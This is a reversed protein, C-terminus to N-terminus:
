HLYVLLVLFLVISSFYNSLFGRGLYFKYYQLNELKRLILEPGLNELLGRDIKFYFWHSIKLGCFYFKMYAENVFWANSLFTVAIVRTKNNTYVACMWLAFALGAVTFLLPCMKVWNSVSPSVELLFDKSLNYGLGISFISLVILGVTLATSSEKTLSKVLLSGKDEAIIGELIARMTYCATFCAGILGFLYPYAILSNSHALEIILDKSYYGTLFPLGMLAMSGILISMTTLPNSWTLCGTKRFDQEEIVSHIISGASLFLLAKFFAHNVLHFLGLSFASIGCVLVMYGLQSCTSYAIVKKLDNQVLGVSSAFLATISGLFILILLASECQAFLPSLRLILFVGATVMTAAHILASVPTPGEMADPLWIHLGFQASKGAVAMTTFLLLIFCPTSDVISNLEVFEVTGYVEWCMIIALLFAMDGVRNVLVAKFASKVAQTRQSWFAVLLYSCVGVGEWGLFFVILNSSTVLVLMSLCFICLYILFRGLHPDGEMYSLSYVSVITSILVVTFVLKSTLTDNIFLWQIEKTGLFWWGWAELSFASELTGVQEMNIFTFGVLLGYGGWIIFIMGKENMKLASTVVLGLLILVFCLLLFTM